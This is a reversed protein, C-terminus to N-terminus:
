VASAPTQRHQAAAPGSRGDGRSDLGDTGLALPRSPTVSPGLRRQPLGPGDARDELPALDVEALGGDRLAAAIATLLAEDRQGIAGFRLSYFNAYGEALPHGVALFLWAKRGGASARVALKKGPPPCHEALLRFWDLRDFLSPQAARDLAGAADRAVADFNKSFSSKPWKCEAQPQPM